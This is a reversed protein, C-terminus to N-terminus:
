IESEAFDGPYVELKFLGAITGLGLSYSLTISRAGNVEALTVKNDTVVNTQCYNRGMYTYITFTDVDTTGTMSTPDNLAWEIDGLYNSAGSNLATVTINGLGADTVYGVYELVVLNTGDAGDNGPIGKYENILVINQSESQSLLIITGNESETVLVSNPNNENNIVIIESM